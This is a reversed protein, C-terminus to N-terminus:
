IVILLLEKFKRFCNTSNKLTNLSEKFNLNSFDLYIERIKKIEKEINEFEKEKEKENKEENSDKINNEINLNFVIDKLSSINDKKEKIINAEKELTILYNDLDNELFKKEQM